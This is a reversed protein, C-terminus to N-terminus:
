NVYWNSFNYLLVNGYITTIEMTNKHRMHPWDTVFFYVFSKVSNLWKTFMKVDIAIQTNKHIFAVHFRTGDQRVSISKEMYDYSSIQGSKVPQLKMGAFRPWIIM